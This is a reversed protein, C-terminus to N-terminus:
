EPNHRSALDKAYKIARVDRGGYFNLNKYVILGQRVTVYSM